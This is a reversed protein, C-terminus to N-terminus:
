NKSAGKQLLGLRKWVRSAIAETAMPALAMNYGHLSLWDLESEWRDWNWYPTTYGATVVNYAQRVIYPTTVKKIDSNPWKTPRQIEAWDVMGLGNDRLYDYVGRTIAIVSSGSVKLVGGDASNQLMRGWRDKEM